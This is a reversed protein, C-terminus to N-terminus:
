PNRKTSLIAPRMAPIASPPRTLAKRSPSLPHIIGTVSAEPIQAKKKEAIEDHGAGRAPAGKKGYASKGGQQLQGEALVLVQQCSAANEEKDEAQTVLNEDAQPPGSVATM